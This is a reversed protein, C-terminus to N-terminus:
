TIWRERRGMSSTTAIDRAPTGSARLARAPASRQETYRACTRKSQGLQRAFDAMCCLANYWLANIEVAKWYAPHRGLGRDQCGDLHAPRGARRMSCGMRLTVHIQYRTGRQHWAIMDELLPFLEQLLAEDQTAAVTARLAEVYWLAADVTNYVPAEGAEPLLEAATRTLSLRL